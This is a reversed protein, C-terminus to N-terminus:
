LSKAAAPQSRLTRQRQALERQADLSQLAEHAAFWQPSDVLAGQAHQDELAFRDIWPKLQDAL